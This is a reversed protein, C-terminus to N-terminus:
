PLYVVFVEYVGTFGDQPVLYYTESTKGTPVSVTYTGPASNTPIQGGDGNQNRIELTGAARSLIRLQLQRNPRAPDFTVAKSRYSGNAAYNGGTVTAGNLTIASFVGAPGVETWSSHPALANEEEEAAVVAALATALDTAGDAMLHVGDSLKNLPVTAYQDTVELWPRTSQLAVAADRYDLLTAGTANATSSRRIPPLNVYRDAADAAHLADFLTAVNAAYEAATDNGGSSDFDNTGRQNLYVRTGYGALSAKVRAVYATLAASDAVLASLYATSAGGSLVDYGASELAVQLQGALGDVPPHATGYGVSNSDGELYVANAAAVPAIPTATTGAALVLQAVRAGLRAGGALYQSSALVSLTGTAGPLTLPFSTTGTTATTLYAFYANNWLLATGISGANNLQGELLQSVTLTSGGTIAYDLRAGTSYGTGAPATSPLLANRRYNAAVPTLTVAQAGGGGGELAELRTLIDDIAAFGANAKVKIENADEATFKENAAPATEAPSTKNAKNAYAIPDLPM